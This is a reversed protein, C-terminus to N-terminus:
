IYIVEGGQLVTQAQQQQQEEPRDEATILPGVQDQQDQQLLTTVSRRM